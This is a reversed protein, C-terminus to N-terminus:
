APAAPRQAFIAKALLVLSGIAVIAVVVNAGVFVLPALRAVAGGEGKEIMRLPASGLATAGFTFGWYSPAFPERMIWPLMRILVLAQLLAYGLLSHAIIDVPETAVNLYAILGVAPPALQIGLAPRLPLPLAPGTYLRHLLVSEIALWSFLGAGFALQGWDAQGMAALATASVFAGAVLPLYLIPTTTDPERGGRWLRGTRWLGFAVTLTIGLSILAVAIAVSYPLAALGVLSTAVGILGVFCCQVPHELEVIAQARAFIWKGIYLVILCAWVTTALSMLLEGVIPPMAWVRSATRWAGGLGVVGLVAGFFAASVIPLRM